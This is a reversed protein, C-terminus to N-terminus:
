RQRADIGAESVAALLSTRGTLQESLTNMTHPQSSFNVTIQDLETAIRQVLENFESNIKTALEEFEVDLKTKASDLGEFLEEM